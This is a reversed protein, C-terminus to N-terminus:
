SEAPPTFQSGEAPMNTWRRLLPEPVCMVAIVIALEVCAAYVGARAITAGAQQISALMGTAPTGGILAAGLMAAMGIILMVVTLQLAAKLLRGLLTYELM